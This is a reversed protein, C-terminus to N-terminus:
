HRLACVPKVHVEIAYRHGSGVVLAELPAERLHAGQGTALAAASHLEGASDDNTASGCHRAAIRSCQSELDELKDFPLRVCATQAFFRGSPERTANHAHKLGTGERGFPRELGGGCFTQISAIKTGRNGTEDWHHLPLPCPCLSRSGMGHRFRSPRGSSATGCKRSSGRQPPTPHRGLNEHSIRPPGREQCSPQERGQRDGSHDVSTEISKQPLSIVSAFSRWEINPLALATIPPCKPPKPLPM